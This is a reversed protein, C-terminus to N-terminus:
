RRWVFPDKFGKDNLLRDAMDVSDYPVRPIADLVPHKVNDIESNVISKKNDITDNISSIDIYGANLYKEYTSQWETRFNSYTPGNNITRLFKNSFDAEDRMFVDPEGEKVFYAYHERTADVYGDNLLKLIHNEFDSDTISYDSGINTHFHFNKKDVQRVIVKKDDKQLYLYM